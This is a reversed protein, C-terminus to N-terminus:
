SFLEAALEMEIDLELDLDFDDDWQSLHSSNRELSKTTSIKEAIKPNDEIYPSTSINQTTEVQDVHNIERHQNDEWEEESEQNEHFYNAISPEQEDEIDKREQNPSWEEEGNQYSM